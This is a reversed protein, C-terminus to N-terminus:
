ETGAVKPKKGGKAKKEPAANSSAAEAKAASKPFKIDAWREVHRADEPKYPEDHEFPNTNWGAAELKDIEEQTSCLYFQKDPSFRGARPKPPPNAENYKKLQDPTMDAM